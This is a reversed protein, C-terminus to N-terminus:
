TKNPIEIYKRKKKKKKIQKEKRREVETEQRQKGEGWGSNVVIAKKYQRGHCSKSNKGKLQKQSTIPMRGLSGM